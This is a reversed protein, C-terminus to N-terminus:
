VNEVRGAYFRTLSASLRARHQPSFERGKQGGPHLIPSTDLNHKKEEYRKIWNCNACLVQVREPHTIISQLRRYYTEKSYKYGDGEIHDLQLARIDDFGCRVCKNGMRRILAFRKRQLYTSHGAM